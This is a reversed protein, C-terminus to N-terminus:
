GNGIGTDTDYFDDSRYRRCTCYDYGPIYEFGRQTIVPFCLYGTDIRYSNDDRIGTDYDYFYESRFNLIWAYGTITGTSGSGDLTVSSVPLSMTQSTGAARAVPLPAPNVTITVQLRSTGGNISLQFVYTGPNIRHCNHKCWCTHHNFGHKTRFNTDM